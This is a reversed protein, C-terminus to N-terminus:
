FGGLLSMKGCKKYSAPPCCLFWFPVPFPIGSGIQWRDLEEPPIEAFRLLFIALASFRVISRILHQHQHEDPGRRNRCLACKGLGAFDPHGEM